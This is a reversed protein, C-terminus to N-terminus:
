WAPIVTIWLSCSLCSQLSAELTEGQALGLQSPICSSALVHPLSCELTKVALEPHTLVMLHSGSFGVYDQAWLLSTLICGAASLLVWWPGCFLCPGPLVLFWTRGHASPYVRTNRDPIPKLFQLCYWPSHNLPNYDPTLSNTQISVGVYASMLDKGRM